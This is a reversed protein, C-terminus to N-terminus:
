KMKLESGPKLDFTDLKNKIRANAIRESEAIKADSVAKEEQLVKVFEAEVSKLEQHKQAELTDISSERADLGKERQNFKKNIMSLDKADVVKRTETLFTGTKIKVEKIKSNVVKSFSMEKLNQQQHQQNQLRQYYNKVRNELKEANTKKASLELEAKKLLRKTKEIQDTLALHESPMLDHMEKVSRHVVKASMQIQKNKYHREDSSDLGLREIQEKLRTQKSIGRDFGLSRFSDSVLDQLDITDKKGIKGSIARGTKDNQNVFSYHYHTQFEDEHRILRICSTKYKAEFSRTFERAANDLHQKNINNNFDSGFTIIGDIVLNSKKQWTLKKGADTKRQSCLELIQRMIVKDNMDADILTVNNHSREIDVYSPIEGIRKDHSAQGKSTKSAKIRTSVANGMKDSENKIIAFNYSM